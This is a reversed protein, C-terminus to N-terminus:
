HVYWKNRGNGIKGTIFGYGHIVCIDGNTTDVYDDFFSQAADKCSWGVKLDTMANERKLMKRMIAENEVPNISFLFGDLPIDCIQLHPSTEIDVPSFPSRADDVCEEFM